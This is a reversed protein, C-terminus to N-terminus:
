QANASNALYLQHVIGQSVEVADTGLISLIKMALCDPQKIIAYLLNESMIKPKNYKKANQYALELAKKARTTYTFNKFNEDWTPIEINMQKKIENRVDNLTIGLKSLTIAGISNKYALIGALILETGITNKGMNQAEHKAFRLIVLTEPTQQTLRKTLDQEFDQPCHIFDKIIKYAIGRKAKLMGLVLYEPNIEVSGNERAADAALLMARFANPTFIIKKDDYEDERNSFEELKKSFSERDIGYEALISLADCEQSELISQFIQETGLVEYGKMSLKSVANEFIHKIKDERFLGSLESEESREKVELSEPHKFKSKKKTILKEFNSVIVEDDMGCEKLIRYAGSDKLRALALYIHQPMIFPSKFNNAIEVAKELISKASDSFPIERRKTCKPKNQLSKHVVEKLEEFELGSNKFILADVGKAQAVVGLLIHESYVINNGLSGALDQAEQIINVAKQTFKRFM